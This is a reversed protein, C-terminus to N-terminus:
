DKIVPFGLARKASHTGDANRSIFPIQRTDLSFSEKDPKAFNDEFLASAGDWRQAAFQGNSSLLHYFTNNTQRRVTIDWKGDGEYDGRAPRDGTGTAGDFPIGFKRM